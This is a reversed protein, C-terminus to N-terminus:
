IRMEVVERSGMLVSSVFEDQRVWEDGVAM